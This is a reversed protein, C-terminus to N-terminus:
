EEAAGEERLWRDAAEIADEYSFGRGVLCRVAKAKRKRPDPERRFQAAKRHLVAFANEGDVSQGSDSEGGSAPEDEDKGNLTQEIIENPIGRKRLAMRIRAPGYGRSRYSRAVDEALFDDHLAGMRKVALVADDIEAPSFLKKAALKKRLEATSVLRKALIEVAAVLATKKEPPM